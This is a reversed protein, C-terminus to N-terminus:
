TGYLVCVLVVGAFIYGTCTDGGCRVSRVNAVYVVVVLIVVTVPMFVM